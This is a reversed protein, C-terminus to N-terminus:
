GLSRPPRQLLEQVDNTINATYGRRIDDFLWAMFDILQADWHMAKMRQIESEPTPSVHIITRNAIASLRAAVEGYSLSRRWDAYIGQRAGGWRPAAKGGGGCHRAYRDARHQYRRHCCFNMQWEIKYDCLGTVRSKTRCITYSMYVM